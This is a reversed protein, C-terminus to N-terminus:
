LPPPQWGGSAEEVIRAAALAVDERWPAAVLQVGIPLDGPATGGRVVVAPFGTLNHIDSYTDGFAPDNSGGHLIAPQPMAPCVIVDVDAMWRLMRSRVGDAHEVLATLQDGPMPEGFQVWGRTDYSGHGSTGAREILRTLWAHGDASIMSAWADAVEDLGPPRRETVVAGADTLAAAARRVTDITEPTPTLVGDDTFMAVHLDHVHVARPDGLAVPYVFPDVGDPGAIVPLLLELDEVRRAIPGLQTFAQFLGRFDPWHGTRPVRGTTPKIGAVGCVHAPQRISDGTDSGVDFPSAGAAVIAASGGSSGGPTRALDYPNSTRGYVDNDTEDSWTFEPTNTKGVLIAGARRLRGVVTADRDPVRDRWGVTGATTVIGATDFSDKITFPLGHLPGVADGRALAVDAQQAAELVGDVRRVVANIRPNVADIRELVATMVDVSSRRGAHIDEALSTASDSVRDSGSM